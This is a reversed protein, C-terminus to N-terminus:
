RTPKLCAMSSTVVVCYNYYPHLTPYHTTTGLSNPAGELAEVLSDGLARKKTKFPKSVSVQRQKNTWGNEKGTGKGAGSSTQVCEARTLVRRSCMCLSLSRARSLCVCM